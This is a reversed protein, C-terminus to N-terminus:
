RDDWDQDPGSDDDEEVPPEEDDHDGDEIDEDDYDGDERDEAETLSSTLVGILDNLGRRHARCVESLRSEEDFESIDIGHGALIEEAEPHEDFLQGMTTGGTIHM